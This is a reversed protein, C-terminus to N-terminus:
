MLGNCKLKGGKQFSLPHRRHATGPKSFRTMVYALRCFQCHLTDFGGGGYYPRSVSFAVLVFLALM